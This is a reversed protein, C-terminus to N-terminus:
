FTVPSRYPLVLPPKVTNTCERRFFQLWLKFAAVVHFMGWDYNWQWTAVDTKYRMLGATIAASTYEIHNSRYTINFRLMAIGRNCYPCQTKHFLRPLTMASFAFSTHKVWKTNIQACMQTCKLLIKTPVSVNCECMHVSNMCTAKAATKLSASHGTWLKHQITTKKKQLKQSTM